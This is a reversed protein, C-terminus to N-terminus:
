LNLLGITSIVSQLPTVTTSLEVFISLKNKITSIYRYMSDRFQRVLLNVRVCARKWTPIQNRIFLYSM